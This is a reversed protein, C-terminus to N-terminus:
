AIGTTFAFALAFVLAIKKMALEGLGDTVAVRSCYIAGGHRPGDTRRHQNSRKSPEFRKGCAAWGCEKWTEM